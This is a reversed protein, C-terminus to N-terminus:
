FLLGILMLVLGVSVGLVAPTSVGATPLEPQEVRPSPSPSAQAIYSPSPSTYTVPCSCDAEEPCNGNLCRYDDTDPYNICELNNPCDSDNDCTDFCVLSQSCDCDSEDSCGPNVCRDVGSVDMCRLDEECDSDSDCTEFCSLENCECDIEDSCSPNVCRDDGEVDMCRLDEECDSDDDCTDFCSSLEPSPTPSPSPSPELVIKLECGDISGVGPCELVFDDFSVQMLATMSDYAALNLEIRGGDLESDTETRVLKWTSGSQYYYNIEDDVKELKVRVQSASGLDVTEEDSGQLTVLEFQGSVKQL